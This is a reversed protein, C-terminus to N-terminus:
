EKKRVLYSEEIKYSQIIYNDAFDETSWCFYRQGEMIPKRKIQKCYKNFREFVKDKDTHTYLIDSVLNCYRRGAPDFNGSSFIINYMEIVEYEQPIEINGCYHTLGLKILDEMNSVFDNKYVDYKTANTIKQKKFNYKWWAENCIYSPREEESDRKRPLCVKEIM